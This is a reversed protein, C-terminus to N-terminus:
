GLTLLDDLARDLEPGELHWDESPVEQELPFSPPGEELSYPDGHTFFTRDVLYRAARDPATRRYHVLQEGVPRVGVAVAIRPVDTVNAVSYHVLASDWLAATGAPMDIPEARRALREKHDEWSHYLHTGRIMSHLRHSGSVMYPRGNDETIDELAVM